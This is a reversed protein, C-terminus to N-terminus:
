KFFWKFFSTIKKWINKNNITNKNTNNKISDWDEDYDKDYDKLLFKYKKFNSIDRSSVFSLTLRDFEYDFSNNFGYNFNNNKFNINKYIEVIKKIIGNDIQFNNKLIIKAHSFNETNSATLYKDFLHFKQLNKLDYEKLSREKFAEFTENRFSVILPINIMEVTSTMSGTSKLFDAVLFHRTEIKPENDKFLSDDINENIQDKNNNKNFPSFGCKDMDNKIFEFIDEKSTSKKNEVNKPLWLISNYIYEKTSKNYYVNIKFVEENKWIFSFSSNQWTLLQEQVSRWTLKTRDQPKYYVEVKPFDIINNQSM